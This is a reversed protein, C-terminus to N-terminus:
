EIKHNDRPPTYLTTIGLFAKDLTIYRDRRIGADSHEPLPIQESQCCQSSLVLDDFTITATNSHTDIEQALSRIIPTAGKTTELFEQLQKADWERPVGTVRWTDLDKNEKTGTTSNSHGFYWRWALFTFIALIALLTIQGHLGVM